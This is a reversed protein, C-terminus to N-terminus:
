LCAEPKVACLPPGASMDPEPPLESGGGCATLLAALALTAIIRM